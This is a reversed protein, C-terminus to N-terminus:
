NKFLIEAMAGEAYIEDGSEKLASDPYQKKTIDVKELLKILLSNSSKALSPNYWVQDVKKAELFNKFAQKNGGYFFDFEMGKIKPAYSNRTIELANSFKDSILSQLKKQKSFFLLDTISSSLNYEYCFVIQVDDQEQNLGQTLVNLSKVSFDTPILIVKM